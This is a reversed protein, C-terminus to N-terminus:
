CKAPMSHDQIFRFNGHISIDHILLMCVAHINERTYIDDQLDQWTQAYEEFYAVFFSTAISINVSFGAEM